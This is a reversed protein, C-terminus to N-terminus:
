EQRRQKQTALEAIQRALEGVQMGDTAATLLIASIEDELTTQRSSAQAADPRTERRSEKQTAGPREDLVKPEQGLKEQTWALYDRYLGIRLMQDVQTSPAVREEEVRQEATVTKAEEQAVVQGEHQRKDELYDRDSGLQGDEGIRDLKQQLKVEDWTYFPVQEITGELLAKVWGKQAYLRQGNVVLVFGRGSKTRELKANM